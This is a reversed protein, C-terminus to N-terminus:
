IYEMFTSMENKGELMLITRLKEKKQLPDQYVRPKVTRLTAQRQCDISDGTSTSFQHVLVGPTGLTPRQKTAKLLPGM